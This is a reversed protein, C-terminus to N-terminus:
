VKQGQNHIEYASEVWTKGGVLSNANFIEGTPYFESHWIKRGSNRVHGVRRDGDYFIRTGHATKRWNM